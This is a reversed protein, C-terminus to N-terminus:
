TKVLGTLGMIFLTTLVWGAIIEFWFWLRLFGGFKRKM